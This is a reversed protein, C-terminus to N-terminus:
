GMGLAARYSEYTLKAMRQMTFARARRGAAEGLQRRRCPDELLSAIAAALVDANQTDVLVGADGVVEAKASIGRAVVFAGSAMAELVPLGFVEYLSPFVSL